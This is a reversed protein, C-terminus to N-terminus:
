RPSSILNTGRPYIRSPGPQAFLDPAYIRVAAVPGLLLFRHIVFQNKFGQIWVLVRAGRCFHYPQEPGGAEACFGVDLKEHNGSVCAADHGAGTQRVIHDLADGDRGLVAARRQSQSQHVLHLQQGHLAPLAM